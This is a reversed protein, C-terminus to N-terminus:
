PLTLSSAPVLPDATHIELHGVDNVRHVKLLQSFYNKWRNLINHYDALDGNEDKLLNSRPQYGRQFENMGRYKDIINKDKMALLHIKDELYKNKKNWFYRSEERRINNLNDWKIESPNRLWQL